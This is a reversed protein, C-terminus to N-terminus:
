NIKIKFFKLILIHTSILSLMSIVIISIACVIDIIM